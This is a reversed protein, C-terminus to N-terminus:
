ECNTFLFIFLSPRYIRGGVTYLYIRLPKDERSARLFGLFDSLFNKSYKQSDYAFYFADHYLEDTLKYQLLEQLIKEDGMEALSKVYRFCVKKYSFSKNQVNYLGSYTEWNNIFSWVKKAYFSAGLGLCKFGKEFLVDLDRFYEVDTYLGYYDVSPDFPIQFRVRHCIKRWFIQPLDGLLSDRDELYVLLGEFSERSLHAYM